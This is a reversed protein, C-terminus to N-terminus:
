ISESHNADTWLFHPNGSLVGANIVHDKVLDDFFARLIENSLSMAKPLSYMSPQREYIHVDIGQQKLLLATFLGVVGAGVIVLDCSRKLTTQDIGNISQTM